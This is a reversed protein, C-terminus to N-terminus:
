RLICYRKGVTRRIQHADPVLGQAAMEKLIDMCHKRVEPNPHRVDLSFEAEDNICTHIGPHVYIEGTTYVFEPEGKKVVEANYEDYRKTCKVYSLQQQMFLM